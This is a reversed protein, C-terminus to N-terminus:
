RAALGVVLAVEAAVSLREVVHAVGDATRAVRGRACCPCRPADILTLCAM